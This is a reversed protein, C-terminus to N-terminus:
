ENGIADSLSKRGRLVNIKDLVFPTANETQMPNLFPFANGDRNVIYEYGREVGVLRIAENLLNRVPREMDKQARVLLSDAERRFAIGKEMEEQLDRQRKLLINQPFDKQGQLFEAFLRKFNRENYEAEAAYKSRLQEVHLQMAAYEPMAHLLSDYRLSGYKAANQAFADLVGCFLCFCVSLIYYLKMEVFSIKLRYVIRRRQLHLM